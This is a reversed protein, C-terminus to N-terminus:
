PKAPLTRLYLKAQVNDPDLERAHEWAMRAGATDGIALLALGMGLHAPVYSPRRAVAAQCHARAAIPEGNERLLTALRTQLDPFHPALAVAKELERIADRPMRADLYAQAVEAHMNAIRGYAFQDLSPIEAQERLQTHLERAQEYKGRDNYTITLNLAAETYHPNIQLARELHHEAAILNGRTHAIVGLMNHVDAYAEVDGLIQRLALDAREWDREAYAERALILSRRSEDQM